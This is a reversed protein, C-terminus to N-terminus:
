PRHVDSAKETSVGMTLAHARSFDKHFRSLRQHDDGQAKAITLADAEHRDSALIVAPQLGTSAMPM